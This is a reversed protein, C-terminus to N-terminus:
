FERYTREDHLSRSSGRRDALPIVLTDRFPPTYGCVLAGFFAAAKREFRQHGELIQTGTPSDGCPANRYGHLTIDCSTVHRSDEAQQNGTWELLDLQESM